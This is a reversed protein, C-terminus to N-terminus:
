SESGMRGKLASDRVGNENAEMISNAAKENVMIANQTVGLFIFFLMILFSFFFFQFTSHGEFSLSVINHSEAVVIGCKLVDTFDISINTNTAM